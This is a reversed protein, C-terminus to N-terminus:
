KQTRPRYLLVVRTCVPVARGDRLFPRFRWEGIYTAIKRDYRGFGTSRVLEVRSPAGGRDICLAVEALTGRGLKTLAVADPEDPYIAKEGATRQPEMLHQPMQIPEDEDSMSAASGACGIPLCFLSLWIQSRAATTM